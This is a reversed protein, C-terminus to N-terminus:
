EESEPQVVPPRRGASPPTLIRRLQDSPDTYDEADYFNNSFALNGPAYKYLFARREHRAKWPMTGHMLAETFILADGAEVEPQVLYDPVREFRRVEPPVCPGFNTKHSGPICAFGGDGAKADALFFTVVSLGNLMEGELYLYKRQSGRHGGPAGHLNGCAAGPTMFICYDHDLRFAPGLLEILYPVIRPHDILGQTEPSWASVRGTQRRGKRGRSDQSPDGYDRVFKEDAVANLRNVEEKTLVNKVILYGELDFQFKEEPTM